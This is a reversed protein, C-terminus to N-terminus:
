GTLIRLAQLNRLGIVMSFVRRYFNDDPAYDPANSLRYTKEDTYLTDPEASRALLHVKATVALEMQAITPNTVYVDPNGDADSDLGIEIQMNEIGQALCETEISPPSSFELVKRCLTPIADGPVVAFNRIYYISPRYEWTVFPAPVPVAPPVDAPEQFLLGVTGTTRLYVTDATLAMPAQQGAVRKIAVIDTGPVIEDGLCSYAANATAVTANDVMTLSEPEGTLPVTTRYIWELVGAPGCDTGIELSGDPVVAGPLVLDAWLGAMTLDNTLERIAQRADDQLTLITEDRDFSHRNNVFLTVIGTGMILGLTMAILLETLSFGNNARFNV